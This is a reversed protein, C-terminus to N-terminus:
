INGIYDLDSEKLEVVYLLLHIVIGLNEKLKVLQIIFLVQRM